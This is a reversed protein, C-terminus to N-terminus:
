CGPSYGGFTEAFLPGIGPRAVRRQINEARGLVCGRCHAQQVGGHGFWQAFVLDEPRWQGRANADPWANPM